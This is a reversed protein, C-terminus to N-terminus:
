LEIRIWAPSFSGSDVLSSGRNLFPATQPILVQLYAKAIIALGLHLVVLSEPHVIALPLAGQGCVSRRFMELTRERDIVFHM